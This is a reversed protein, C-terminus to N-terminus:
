DKGRSSRTKMWARLWVFADVIKETLWCAAALVAIFAVGGGIFGVAGALLKGHWPVPLRSVRAIVPFLIALLIAVVAIVVLLESDAFGRRRLRPVPERRFPKQQM